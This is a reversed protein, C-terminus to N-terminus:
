GKNKENNSTCQCTHKSDTDCTTNSTDRIEGQCCPQVPTSMNCGCGTNTNKSASDCGICKVGKRKQIIIYSIAGGLIALIIIWAIFENM